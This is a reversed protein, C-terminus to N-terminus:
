LLSNAEFLMHRVETLAAIGELDEDSETRQLTYRIMASLVRTGLTFFLEAMEVQSLSSIDFESVIKEIDSADKMNKVKGVLEQCAPHDFSAMRYRMDLEEPREFSSLTEEKVKWGDKLADPLADFLSQEERRLHLLSAM